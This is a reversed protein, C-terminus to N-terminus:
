LPPEEAPTDTYEKLPVLTQSWGRLDPHYVPFVAVGDAADENTVRTSGRVFVGIAATGVPVSVDIFIDHSGATVPAIFWKWHEKAASSSAAFQGASGTSRVKAPRGDVMIAGIANTAAANGEVLVCLEGNVVDPMALAPRWEFRVTNTNSGTEAGRAIWAAPGAGEVSAEPGVHAVPPVTAEAAPVTELMVTEYPALLIQPAPAGPELRAVLERRPYIMRLERPADGANCVPLELAQQELWPNRVCYIDKAPHHFMYGYAERAVADGGFMRAHGLYQKNARAWKVLAALFDWNRATMLEPKLYTSIFWRGRGIAMVALNEFDGPSQMVVDITEMAQTPMIWRDADSRYAIDRATILSEMWDPSPVRGHPVDDGYPGLVYPTKATWWPSPPYGTCLPELVIHPNVARLSDLVDAMGADIAHASDFGVPHGHTAVDCQHAMFDLKVHRIGYTTVLSLLNERFERQYRGGLAFCAIKQLKEDAYEFPAVEYGASELWRNDLGEPYASGPSVWLGLRAGLSQLRENIARFGNPFRRGDIRWVSRSDSWGLDLAFSDFFMGTRGSFGQALANIDKMVDAESFPLPLTWWTNTHLEFDAPKVRITDLYQLYSYRSKEEPRVLSCDSAVPWGAVVAAIFQWGEGVNVHPTQWLRVSDDDAVAVGSVHEVGFFFDRGFLPFSAPASGTEQFSEDNVRLDLLGARELRRDGGLSQAWTEIRAINRAPGFSFVRRFRMGAAESAQELVLRQADREVLAWGTPALTAEVGSAVITTTRFRVTRPEAEGPILFGSWQWTAAPEGNSVFTLSAGSEATLSVPAPPDAPPTVVPDPDTVTTGSTPDPSTGGNTPEAPVIGSESDATEIATPVSAVDVTENEPAFVDLTSEVGWDCGSCSLSLVLLTVAVHRPLLNM